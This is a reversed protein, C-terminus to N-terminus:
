RWFLSSGRKHEGAAYLERWCITWSNYIPMHPPRGAKIPAGSVIMCTSVVQLPYMLSSCVFQVFSGLYQRSEKNQIIYKNLLYITTSSLVLSSVDCLLKPTFGSFFGLLGEQQFIERISSGM